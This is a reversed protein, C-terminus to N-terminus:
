ETGQTSLGASESEGENRDLAVGGVPCSEVGVIHV